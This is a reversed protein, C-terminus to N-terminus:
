LSVGDTHSPLSTYTETLIWQDVTSINAWTSKNLYVCSPWRSCTPSGENQKTFTLSYPRALRFSHPRPFRGVRFEHPERWPPTGYVPVTLSVSGTVLPDTPTRLLPLPYNTTISDGTLIVLIHKIVPFIPIYFSIFLFVTVVSSQLCLSLYHLSLTTRVTSTSEDRVLGLFYRWLPRLDQRPGLIQSHSVWM